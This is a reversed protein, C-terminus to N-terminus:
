VRYSNEVRMGGQKYVLKKNRCLFFIVKDALFIKESM